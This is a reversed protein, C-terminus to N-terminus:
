NVTKKGVHTVGNGFYNKCKDCRYIERNGFGVAVGKTKCTPCVGKLAEDITRGQAKWAEWGDTITKVVGKKEPRPMGIFPLTNVIPKQKKSRRIALKGFTGHLKGKKAQLCLIKGDALEGIKKVTIGSERLARTLMEPTSAFYFAGTKEDRIGALPNGRRWLWMTDPYKESILACAFKGELEAMALRIATTIKKGESLIFHEILRLVTESDVAGDKKLGYKRLLHKENTLWGNHILTLGSVKSYIPHNNENDSPSGQTAYRTHLLVSRPTADFPETFLPATAIFDLARLDAKCVVTTGDDHYAYGTAHRGRSEIQKLLNAAIAARDLDRSKEVDFIGAIGCM